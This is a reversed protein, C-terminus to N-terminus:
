DQLTGTESGTSDDLLPNSSIPLWSFDCPPLGARELLYTQASLPVQIALSEPLTVSPPSPSTSPFPHLLRTWSGNMNTCWTSPVTDWIVVSGIELLQSLIYKLDFLPSALVYTVMEELFAMDIEFPVRDVFSPTTHYLVYVSYLAFHHRRDLTTPFEM